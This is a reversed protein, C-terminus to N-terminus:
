HVRRKNSRTKKNRRVAKKRRTLKRRRGGSVPETVEIIDYLKSGDAPGCHVASVVSGGSVVSYSAIRGVLEVPKLIYKKGHQMRQAQSDKVYARIDLNLLRLAGRQVNTPQILLASEPVSTNCRFFVYDNLTKYQNLSEADICAVSKVKNTSDMIYFTTMDSTVNVNYNASIPDFCKTPVNSPLENTTLRESSNVAMLERLQRNRINNNSNNNYLRGRSNNNNSPLDVAGHEILFEILEENDVRLKLFQLLTKGRNNTANIDAGHELLYLANNYYQNRTENWVTYFLPTQGLGDKINVDAGHEVLYRIGDLYNGGSLIHLPAVSETLKNVDAGYEILIDAISYKREILAPLIPNGDNPDAGHELIRRVSEATGYIVAYILLTDHLYHRESVLTPHAELLQTLREINRQRIANFADELNTM